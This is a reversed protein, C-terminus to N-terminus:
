SAANKHSNNKQFDKSKQNLNRILKWGEYGCYAFGAFMGALTWIGNGNLKKDIWYGIFSFFAMGVAMNLGISVVAPDKLENFDAKDKNM